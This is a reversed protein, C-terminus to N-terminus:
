LESYTREFNLNCFHGGWCSLSWAFKQHAFKIRSHQGPRANDVIIQSCTVQACKTLKSGCAIFHIDRLKQPGSETEASAGIRDWHPITKERLYTVSTPDNQGDAETHSINVLDSVPLRCFQKGWCYFPETLKVATFTQIIIGLSNTFKTTGFSVVSRYHM